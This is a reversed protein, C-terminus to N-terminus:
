RSTRFFREEADGGGGGYIEINLLGGASCSVENWSQMHLPSPPRRTPSVFLFTKKARAPFWFLFTKKASASLFILFVTSSLSELRHILSFSSAALNTSTRSEYDQEKESCLKRAPYKHKSDLQRKWNSRGGDIGKGADAMAGCTTKSRREDSSEHQM